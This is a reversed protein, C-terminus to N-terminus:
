SDVIELRDEAAAQAQVRHKSLRRGQFDEGLIEDAAVEPKGVVEIESILALAAVCPEVGVPEVEVQIGGAFIRAHEFTGPFLGKENKERREEKQPPAIAIAGGMKKSGPFM